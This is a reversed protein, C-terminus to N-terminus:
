APHNKEVHVQCMLCRLTHQAAHLRKAPIPAGCEFCYGFGGSQIRKLAEEIALLHATEHEGVAFALDRATNIQGRDDHSNDFHDSAEEARSIQGGRQEAIQALLAAREHLLQDKYAQATLADMWEGPPKWANM